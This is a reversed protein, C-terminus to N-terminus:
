EINIYQLKLKYVAIEKQLKFITHITHTYDDQLDKLNYEKAPM